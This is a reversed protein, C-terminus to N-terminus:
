PRKSSHISMAFLSTTPLNLDAHADIWLVFGDSLHRCFAGVTAIGVSHDGGWILVRGPLNLLKLIKSYAQQYENWEFQRISKDCVVRKESRDFVPSTEVDIDGHDFIELGSRELERFYARAFRPSQDLGNMRQGRGIGLGLFHLLSHEM